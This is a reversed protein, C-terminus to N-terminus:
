QQAEIVLGKTSIGKNRKINSQFLAQKEFVDIFFIILPQYDGGIPETFNFKSPHEKSLGSSIVIPLMILFWKPLTNPTKELWTPTPNVILINDHSSPKM